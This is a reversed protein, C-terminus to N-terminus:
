EIPQGTIADNLNGIALPREDTRTASTCFAETM